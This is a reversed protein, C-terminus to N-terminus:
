WSHSGLHIAKHRQAETEEPNFPPVDDQGALNQSPKIASAALRPESQYTHPADLCDKTDGMRFGM